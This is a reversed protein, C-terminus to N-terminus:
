LGKIPGKTFQLFVHQCPFSNFYLVFTHCSGGRDYLSDLYTPNYGITYLLVM